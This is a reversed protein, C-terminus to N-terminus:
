LCAHTHEHTPIKRERCVGLAAFIRCGPWDFTGLLHGQEGVGSHGVDEPLNVSHKLGPDCPQSLLSSM